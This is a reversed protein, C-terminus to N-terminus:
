AEAAAATHAKTQATREPWVFAWVAAALLVFGLPILLFLIEM